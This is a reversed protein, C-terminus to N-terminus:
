ARHIEYTTCHVGRPFPLGRGKPTSLFFNYVGAHSPTRWNEDRLREHLESWFADKQLEQEGRGAGSFVTGDRLVIDVSIVRYTNMQRHEDIPVTPDM